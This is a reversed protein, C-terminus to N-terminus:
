KSDGIFTVNSEGVDRYDDYNKTSEGVNWSSGVGESDEFLASLIYYQREKGFSSDYVAYVYGFAKGEADVEGQKPDTPVKSLDDSKVLVSEIEDVTPYEGNAIKYNEIIKGMQTLDQVREENDELYSTDTPLNSINSSSNDAITEERDRNTLFWILSGGLLVVLVAPLLMAMFLKRKDVTENERQFPQDEEVQPKEVELHALPDETPVSETPQPETPKSLGEARKEEAIKMLALARQNGPEIELIEMCGQVVKEYEGANIWSQIHNLAQTISISTNEDM